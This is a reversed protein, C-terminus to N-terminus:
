KSVDEGRVVTVDSDVTQAVTIQLVSAILFFLTIIKSKM